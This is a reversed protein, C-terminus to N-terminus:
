QCARGDRRRPCLSQGKTTEVIVMKAREICARHWLNSASFNFIGDGDMPRCKLIVIDVPEIFRRYYDPIEGLNVPLYNARGADHKRATMAPFICASGIRTCGTRTRRWCPAPGCAVPLQPNECQYLEGIRAGLAKDFMDPQCLSTGYELWM